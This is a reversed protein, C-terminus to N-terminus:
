ERLGDLIKVREHYLVKQEFDGHDTAKAPKPSLDQFNLLDKGWMIKLLHVNMSRIDLKITTHAIHLILNQFDISMIFEEAGIRHSEKLLAEM